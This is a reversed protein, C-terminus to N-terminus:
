YNRIYIKPSKSISKKLLIKLYIMDAMPSRLGEKEEVPVVKLKINIEDANTNINDIEYRSNRDIHFFLRKVIVVNNRMHYALPFDQGAEFNWSSDLEGISLKESFLGTISDNFFVHCYMQLKIHENEFQDSVCVSDNKLFGTTDYKTEVISTDNPPFAKPSTTGVKKEGEKDPSSCCVLTLFFIYFRSKTM